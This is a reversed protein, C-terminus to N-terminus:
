TLLITSGTTKRSELARHAEAADKLPFRQSTAIEVAGSRVVEFLEAAAALLDSRDAMYTFVTPRTVYLSGKGALRSLDFPPVPGSAAGFLIMFGRPRLCDLSGEFTDRGVGDYVVPVGKGGTIEKVRAVFDEERYLIPHDCGHRRALDAKEPSGVTGIVTAGLHKAWQCAILGVGGAAAHILITMGPEVRFASRLLFQVTLGRLMMGAAQEFGIEDPLAVLRDAAIIREECYAGPAQSIYAVRDGPKVDTVGPGVEIVEGAGEVGPTIPLPLKYLGTRHYTDIYNVGVARHRLLVEGPGPRGTEVQELRLTEPGGTEHVRIAYGM